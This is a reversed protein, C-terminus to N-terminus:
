NEIATLNFKIPLSYQKANQELGSPNDNQLILVGSETAPRAFELQVIFNVWDTTMWDSEALAKGQAVVKGNADVLKVPFFAEFFWQGRAQGSIELPSVIKEEAQPRVIKVEDSQLPTVSVDSSGSVPPKVAVGCGTAPASVSPNGHKVWVNNQCLWTDEDGSFFRLGFIITGATLFIVIALIGILKM